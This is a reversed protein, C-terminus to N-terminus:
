WGAINVALEFCIDRWYLCVAVSSSLKGCWINKNLSIFVRSSKLGLPNQGGRKKLAKTALKRNLMHSLDDATSGELMMLCGRTRKLAICITGCYGTM